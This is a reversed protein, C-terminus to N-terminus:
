LDQIKIPLIPLLRTIMIDKILYIFRINMANLKELFKHDHTRSPSFWVLSPVKEDANIV